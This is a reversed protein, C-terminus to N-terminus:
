LGFFILFFRLSTALAIGSFLRALLRHNPTDVGDLAFALLTPEVFPISDHLSV